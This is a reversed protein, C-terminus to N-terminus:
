HSMFPACLLRLNEINLWETNRDSTYSFGEKTFKGKRGNLFKGLRSPDHTVAEPIIVYHDLFEVTHRADESSIMLEHLKEGDRIGCYTHPIGPAVAEALDKIHISPIKPVFIEGGRMERFCKTVFDAAQDLTIWFRTMRSDTIPLSIAGEALLKGWYPLISGRSGSVNGYRVVSFRPLGKAGVYANGAVFLKDSCLKTAGYLNIPNVAKDTSLAIVKEVECTIAADILNMAGLVNTKIFESPNYEAAPVQKLAAAHVIINVENFARMLRNADRVDGIFYRIKPHNFLPESQKMEWQKWEDRSFIIVKKCEDELLLKKAFARGFSGTGGTILISKNKFLQKDNM